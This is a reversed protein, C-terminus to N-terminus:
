EMVSGVAESSVGPRCRKSGGQMSIMLRASLTGQGDTQM